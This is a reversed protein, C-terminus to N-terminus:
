IPPPPPRNWIDYFKGFFAELYATLMEKEKLEMIKVFASRPKPKNESPATDSGSPEVPAPNSAGEGLDMDTDVDNACRAEAPRDAEREEITKGKEDAIRDVRDSPIHSPHRTHEEEM